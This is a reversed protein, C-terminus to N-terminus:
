KRDSPKEGRDLCLGSTNCASVRSLSEIPNGCSEKRIATLCDDLHKGDIGGPCDSAKLDDRLKVRMDNSCTERSTYHKDTGINNCAAERECRAAVIRNVATENNVAAGVNAGTVTTEGTSRERERDRDIATGHDSKNCGFIAVLAVPVLVHVLKM